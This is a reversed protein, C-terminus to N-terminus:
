LKKIRRIEAEVDAYDSHLMTEIDGFKIIDQVGMDTYLVDQERLNRGYVASAVSIAVKDGKFSRMLKKKEGQIEIIRGLKTGDANILPYGPRIEGGLVEIGFICPDSKRFINGKLFVIKAPLLLGATKEELEDHKRVSIFEKYREFLDYISKSQIITVGESMALESISKQVPVNFCLVLKEDLKAASIEGKTPEGLKTKGVKMANLAAIKTIADTSGISDACVVVGSSDSASMSSIMTKMEMEKEAREKESSFVSVSTGILAVPEQLVLRIPKAAPVSKVSRYEGFNERSEVLPELEMLMKVRTAAVGEYTHVLVNDGVSLKGSYVIADYVKGVGRLPKEELIAAENRGSEIPNIYKQSLGIIMVLLDEIGVNNVASVPIIAVQKTFDSVRDFREAQFAYNSFDSVLDYVAKDLAESFKKDQGNLFELFPKNEVKTFGEITDIKTLAVLFPTKYSKLIEMSEITQKQIGESVDIVLIVLDAISAGRERLTVFAEHGPSDIFIISPVKVEVKFKSLLEGAIEKIKETPVETLGINQTLGGSEKYAFYTNRIADMVSTKGADVHGLFTCIPSRIKDIM